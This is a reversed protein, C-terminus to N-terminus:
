KKKKDNCPTTFYFNFIFLKLDTSTQPGIIAPGPIDTVYFSAWAIEEKYSCAIFITDHHKIQSGGSARHHNYRLTILFWTKPEAPLNSRLVENPTHKGPVPTWPPKLSSTRILIRRFAKILQYLHKMELVIPRGVYSSLNLSRNQSTRSLSITTKPSKILLRRCLPKAEQLVSIDSWARPIRFTFQPRQWLKREETNRCFNIIKRNTANYHMTICQQM